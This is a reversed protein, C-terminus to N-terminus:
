MKPKEAKTWWEENEWIDKWGLNQYQKNIEVEREGMSFDKLIDNAFRFLDAAFIVPKVM